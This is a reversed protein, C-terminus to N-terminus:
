VNQEEKSVVSVIKAQTASSNDGKPWVWGSFLSGNRGEEGPRMEFVQDFRDKELLKSEKSQTFYLIIHMLPVMFIILTPVFMAADSTGIGIGNIVSDYISPRCEYYDHVLKTPPPLSSYTNEPSFIDRCSGNYLQLGEANVRVNHTDYFNVTLISCNLCFEYADARWDPDTLLAKADPDADGSVPNAFLESGELSISAFSANFVMDNVDDPAFTTVMELVRQATLELTPEEFMVFGALFDFVSCKPHLGTGDACDCQKPTYIDYDMVGAVGIHNFFPYVFAEGVQLLCIHQFNYSAPTGARSLPSLCYVPEMGPYKGEIGIAMSYVDGNHSFTRSEHEPDAISTLVTFPLIGVNISYALMLTHMDFKLKINPGSRHPLYGLYGAHVTENCKASASFDAFPLQATVVATSREYTVDVFLDCDSDVDSLGAVQYFRDFVYAADATFRVTQTASQNLNDITHIEKQFTMLFALNGALDRTTAVQSSQLVQAGIVSMFNSFEANTLTLDFLSISVFAETSEFLTNGLWNGDRDLTWTGFLAIPVEVCSDATYQLSIYLGAQDNIYYQMGIYIAIFFWLFKWISTCFLKVIFPFTETVEYCFFDDKEFREEIFKVTNRYSWFPLAEDSDKKDNQYPSVRADM